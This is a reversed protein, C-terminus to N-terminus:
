EARCNEAVWADIAGRLDLPISERDPHALWFAVTMESAALITVLVVAGTADKSLILGVDSPAERSNAVRSDARRVYLVDNEADYDVVVTPPETAADDFAMFRCLDDFNM